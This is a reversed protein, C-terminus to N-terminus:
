AFGASGVVWTQPRGICLVPLNEGVASIGDSVLQESLVQCFWAVGPSVLNFSCIMEGLYYGQLFTIIMQYRCRDETSWFWNKRSHSFAYFYLLTGEIRAVKFFIPVSLLYWDELESEPRKPHRSHKVQLKWPDFPFVWVQQLILRALEETFNGIDDTSKLWAPLVSILM